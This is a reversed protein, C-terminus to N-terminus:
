ATPIASMPSPLVALILRAYTFHGNPGVSCQFLLRFFIQQTAIYINRQLIFIDCVFVGVRHSPEAHRHTVAITIDAWLRFRNGVSCAKTGKCTIMQLLARHPVGAEVFSNAAAPPM